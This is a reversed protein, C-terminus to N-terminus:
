GDSKGYLIKKQIITHNVRTGLEKFTKLNQENPKKNYNSKAKDRDKMLNKMADNLLLVRSKTVKMLLQWFESM